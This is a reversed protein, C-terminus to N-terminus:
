NPQILESISLMKARNEGSYLDLIIANILIALGGSALAQVVRGLLLFEINGAFVQIAQGVIQLILRLCYFGGEVMHM